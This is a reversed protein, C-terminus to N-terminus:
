SAIRSPIMPPCIQLIRARSHQLLLGSSLLRRPRQIQSPQNSDDSINFHQLTSPTPQSRVRSPLGTTVSLTTSRSGEGRSDHLPRDGRQLSGHKMQGGQPARHSISQAQRSITLSSTCTPHTPLATKRVRTDAGFFCQRAHFWPKCVRACLTYTTGVTLYPLNSTPPRSVCFVNTTSTLVTSHVTGYRVTGLRVGAAAASYRVLHVLHAM